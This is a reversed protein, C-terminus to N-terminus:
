AGPSSSSYPTSAAEMSASSTPDPALSDATTSLLSRTCAAPLCHPACAATFSCRVRREPASPSDLTFALSTAAPRARRAAGLTLTKPHHPLPTPLARLALSSWISRPGWPTGPPSTRSVAGPSGVPCVYQTCVVRWRLSSARRGWRQLLHAGSLVLGAPAPHPQPPVAIRPGVGLLLTPAVGLQAACSGPALLCPEGLCSCIWLQRMCSDPGAHGSRMSVIWLEWQQLCTWAESRLPMVRPCEDDSTRCVHSGDM